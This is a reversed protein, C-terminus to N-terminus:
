INFGRGIVRIEPELIVGFKKEVALSVESMLHLYDSGTGSGTNVFFNAHMSSVEIGGVKMGKCGAADILKGAKEGEPNKYVCGASKASIPQTKKKDSLYGQIREAVSDKVDVRLKLNANLVIDDAKIASRRYGFGLNGADVRDLRGDASMILVSQIINSMECDYSGANGYIAGGLTGPIGTLGEIGAYGREKCFNVLMQLPLGAEAFVEVDNGEERIVQLMRFSRLNMVIGEIGEDSILVNTGGGLIRLPIRKSGAILVINKVSVPDAPYVLVDAPGGIGLNTYHRMEAGFKVEGNYASKFNDEWEERSIPM